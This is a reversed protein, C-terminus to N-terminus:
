SSSTARARPAFSFPPSMEAGPSRQSLTFPSPEGPLGLSQVRAAVTVKPGLAGDPVRTRNQASGLHSQGPGAGPRRSGVERLFASSDLGDTPTNPGRAPSGMGVKLSRSGPSCRPAGRGPGQSRETNALSGRGPKPTAAGDSGSAKCSTVSKSVCRRGCCAALAQRETSAATSVGRPTPRHGPAGPAPALAGSKSRGAARSERASRITCTVSAPHSREPTWATSGLM